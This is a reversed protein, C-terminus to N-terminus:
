QQSAEGIPAPKEERQPVLIADVGEARELQKEVDEVRPAAAGAEGARTKKAVTTKKEAAATTKKAAASKAVTKKEATTTKKAPAKKEAMRRRLRENTWGRSRAPLASGRRPCAATTRSSGRRWSSGSTSCSRRPARSSM